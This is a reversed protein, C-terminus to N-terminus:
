TFITGFWTSWVSYQLQNQNFGFYSVKVLIAQVMAEFNVRVPHNQITSDRQPHSYEVIKEELRMQVYSLSHNREFDLVAQGCGEVM